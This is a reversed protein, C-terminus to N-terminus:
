YTGDDRIALSWSLEYECGEDDSNFPIFKDERGLRRHNGSESWNLGDNTALCGGNTHRWCWSNQDWEISYNLKLTSDADRSGSDRESADITIYMVKAEQRGLTTQILTEDVINEYEDAHLSFGGSSNSKLVEGGYKVETNVVFDGPNDKDPDCDHVATLSSAFLTIQSQPLNQETLADANNTSDDSSGGGGCASIFGALLTTIGIQKISHQLM